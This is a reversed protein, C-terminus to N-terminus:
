NNDPGHQEKEPETKKKHGFGERVEMNLYDVGFKDAYNALTRVAGLGYIGLSTHDSLLKKQRETSQKDYSWWRVKRQKDDKENWHPSRVSCDKDNFLHFVPQGAVFFLDWGHTFARVTFNHEEGSFYLVPDILVQRFLDAPAFVCGASIHSGEIDETHSCINGTYGNALGTIPGENPLLNITTGGNRELKVTGEEYLFSYPMMSLYPKPTVKQLRKITAVFWLDWDLDFRSHSDVQLVYDEDYLLTYGVARAWCPGRSFKYDVYLYEVQAPLVSVWQTADIPHATQDVVAFRLQEPHKAKSVADNITAMLEHDDRYSAINVFIKPSPAGPAVPPQTLLSLRGGVFTFSVTDAAGLVVTKKPTGDAPTIEQVWVQKVYNPAPDGLVKARSVDNSPLQWSGLAVTCSGAIRATVDECPGGELGYTVRLNGPRFLATSTPLYDYVNYRPKPQLYIKGTQVRGEKIQRVVYEAASDSVAENGAGMGSGHFSNAGSWVYVYFLDDTPIGQSYEGVEARLAGMFTVDISGRDEETYGGVRSFLERTFLHQSHFLNYMTGIEYPANEIFANNTHFVGDRMRAYSYSLRHKLFIDDDEWVALLPYKCLAVNANFKKGLPKIRETHNVIRVEPHDFIYEQQDFDNLIVLEKPGPYDQQLFCWITNEILATPRGYTSCYCSIGPLEAM